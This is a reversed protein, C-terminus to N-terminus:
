LDGSGTLSVATVVAAVNAVALLGDVRDFLGGHGPLLKGSDKMGARRKMWSEFFDGAQATVALFAGAIAATLITTRIIGFGAFAGLAISALAMGGLLGAWTKAPSITPAIKPGGIARGAFYAGVDTAIVVLILAGLLGIAGHGGARGMAYDNGIMALFLAAVGVYVLGAIMWAVRLVLRGFMRSVLGWWERLVGLGVALVFFTWVWGGLWMATGAAAVMAIASLTRVGMDSKKPQTETM